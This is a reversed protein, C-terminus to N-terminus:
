SMGIHVSFIYCINCVYGRPCVGISVASMAAMASMVSVISM